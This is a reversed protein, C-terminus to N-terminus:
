RARPRVSRPPARRVVGHLVLAHMAALAGEIEARPQGELWPPRFSAYARLLTRATTEPERAELEGAEVGRRLVDVVLALEEEHFSQQAIKVAASPRHVLDCAHAGEETLALYAALRAEFAASLREAFPRDATAAARMADLVGRHRARSLEEVIADKSPFELYVSGVGVGAERAVDAVTTKGAGYHRLLRDAARLILSRRCAADSMTTTFSKAM